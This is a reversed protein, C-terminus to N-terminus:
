KILVGKLIEPTRKYVVKKIESFEEQNPVRMYTALFSLLGTQLVIELAAGLVFDKENEIQLDAKLSPNLLVRVSNHVAKITNDISHELFGRVTPDLGM